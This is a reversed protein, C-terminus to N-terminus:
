APARVDRGECIALGERFRSVIRADLRNLDRNTTLITPLRLDYRSDLVLYLQEAAWDTQNETGLDDFVVLAQGNRYGDTVEAVGQGEDFAMNRVWQLFAPVKWFYGTGHEAAWANLAAIALHTKGTGVDGALLACWSRGAAVSRCLKLAAKTQPNIAPDFNDFSDSLRNIPIGRSNARPTDGGPNSTPALTPPPLGQARRVMAGDIKTLGKSM